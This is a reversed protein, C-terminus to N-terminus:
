MGGPGKHGKKIPKPASKSAAEAAIGKEYGKIQANLLKDSDKYDAASLTALEKVVAKTVPHAADGKISAVQQFVESLSRNRALSMADFEEEFKEGQKTYFKKEEETMDEDFDDFMDDLEGAAELEELEKALPEFAKNLQVTLNLDQILAKELVDVANKRVTADLTKLDKFAAKVDAVDNDHQLINDSIEQASKNEFRNTMTLHGELYHNHPAVSYLISM